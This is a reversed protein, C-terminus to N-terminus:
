KEERVVEFKIGKEVMFDRLAVLQSKTCSVRFTGCVRQSGDSDDTVATQPAEFAIVNGNESASVPSNEHRESRELEVAYALAVSKDRTKMFERLIAPRLPSESYMRQLYEFDTKLASLKASIEEKLTNIKETKNRWKPNLVDDLRVFDLTNEATFFEELATRKEQLARDDFAQIQSDIAKIPEDILSILEKCENEISQYPTLYERKIKIRRDNIEKKLRNLDAKDNKAQKVGNETVVLSKYFELKPILAQRLEELNSIEAPLEFQRNTIAIEMKEEQIEPLIQAPCNKEAVSRWFIKEHHILWEIDSQVDYREIHYTRTQSCRGGKSEYRIYATIEAFDFGTCVLQHLVQAYYSDPIKGDWEDWQRPNKITVTKIELVGRRGDPTIIEGDLTAFMFPFEESFYMGFESYKVANEPNELRYLERIHSEAKKGFIVAPKESIDEPEEIGSKERYLQVNTKYKNLGVATGAESGGIGNKRLELWKERNEAEIFM